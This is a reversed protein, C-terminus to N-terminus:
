DIKKQLLLTNNDNNVDDNVDNVDNVDDDTNDDLIDQIERITWNLRKRRRIEYYKLTDIINKVSM